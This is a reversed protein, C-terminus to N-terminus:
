PEAEEGSATSIPVWVPGLIRETLPEGILSELLNTFSVLLALSAAAASTPDRAELCMRINALPDAGDKPGGASLWPFDTSTLLLSRNFLADVGRAGIVPSLCGAVRDWTNLTGKAVTSSNPSGGTVQALTRQILKIRMDNRGTLLLLENSLNLVV